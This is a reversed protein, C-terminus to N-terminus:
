LLLACWQQNYNNRMYLKIRELKDIEDDKLIIEHLIFINNLDRFYQKLEDKSNCVKV